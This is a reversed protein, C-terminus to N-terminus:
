FKPIFTTCLSIYDDQIEQDLSLLTFYPTDPMPVGILLIRNVFPLTLSLLYNIAPLFDHLSYHRGLDFELVSLSVRLMEVFILSDNIYENLETSVNTKMGLKLEYDFINLQGKCVVSVEAKAIKNFILRPATPTYCNIHLGSSHFTINLLGISQATELVTRVLYNGLYVQSGKNCRSSYMPLDEIDYEPVRKDGEKHAYAFVSGIMYNEINFPSETIALHVFAKSGDTLDNPIEQLLKNAIDTIIKSLIALMCRKMESIFFRKRLKVLSSLLSDISNGYTNIEIEDPHIDYVMSKIVLGLRSQNGYIGIRALFSARKCVIHLECQHTIFLLRITVNSYGVTSLNHAHMLFDNTNNILTFNLQSPDVKNVHITSQSARIRFFFLDEDFDPVDVDTFNKEIYHLIQGKLIDIQSDKLAARLTTKEEFCWVLTTLLLILLKTSM